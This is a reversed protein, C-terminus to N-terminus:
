VHYIQARASRDSDSFMDPVLGEVPLRGEKDVFSKLSSALM